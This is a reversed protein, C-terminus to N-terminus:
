TTGEVLAYLEDLRGFAKIWHPPSGPPAHATMLVVRCGPPAEHRLDWGEGGLVQRDLVLVNPNMAM